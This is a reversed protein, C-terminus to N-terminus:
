LTIFKAQPDLARKIRRAFSDGNRLGLRPKLAAGLIVLGSLEQRALIADLADLEGPWAVWAQNAGVSYVRQASNAQLKEDLALVRKPTLPVKVLSWGPPVWSFEAAERWLGQEADGELIDVPVDGLVSHLRELRAPLSAVAGGLRAILTAAQDGPQMDLAYIELPQRTLRVLAELASGLSSYRAQLTAWTAPSPM